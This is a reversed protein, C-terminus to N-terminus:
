SLARVASKGFFYCINLDHRAAAAPGDVSLVAIDIFLAAVAAATASAAFTAAAATASAAGVSLGLASAQSFRLRLLRFIHSARWPHPPLGGQPEM